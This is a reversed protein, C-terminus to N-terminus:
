FFLSLALPIKWKSTGKRLYGCDTVSPWGLGLALSEVHVEWMTPVWINPAWTNPGGKFATGLDNAPLKILSDLLQSEFQCGYTISPLVPLPGAWQAM